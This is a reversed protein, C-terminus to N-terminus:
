KTGKKARTKPPKPAPKDSCRLCTQPAKAGLKAVKQGHTARCAICRPRHCTACASYSTACLTAPVCHIRADCDACLVMAEPHCAITRFGFQNLILSGQCFAAGCCSIANRLAQVCLGNKCADVADREIMEDVSCKSAVEAVAGVVANTLEETTQSEVDTAPGASDKLEIFKDLLGLSEGNASLLNTFQKQMEEAAALAEKESTGQSVLKATTSQVNEDFLTALERKARARRADVADEAVPVPPVKPDEAKKQFGFAKRASKQLTSDFALDDDNIQLGGYTGARLWAETSDLITLLTARKCAQSQRSLPSTFVGTDNVPMTMNKRMVDMRASALPDLRSRSPGFPTVPQDFDASSAGFVNQICRLGARYFLLANDDVAEVAAYEPAAAEHRADCHGIRVALDIAFMGRGKRCLPSWNSEFLSCIERVAWEENKPVRPLGYREPYCAIRIAMAVILPLGGPLHVMDPLAGPLFNQSLIGVISELTMGDLIGIGNVIANLAAQQGRQSYDKPTDPPKTSADGNASARRALAEEAREIAATAARTLRASTKAVLECYSKYLIPEVIRVCRDEVDAGLMEGALVFASFGASTGSQLVPSGDQLFTAKNVTLSFPRLLQFNQSDNILYKRSKTDANHALTADHHSFVSPVLMHINRTAVASMGGDFIQEISIDINAPISTPRWLAAFAVNELGDPVFRRVAIIILKPVESLVASTAGIFGRPMARLQLRENSHPVPISRGWEVDRPSLTPSAVGTVIIGSFFRTTEFLIHSLVDFGLM